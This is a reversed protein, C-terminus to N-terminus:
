TVGQQHPVAYDFGVAVGQSNVQKNEQEKQELASLLINVERM